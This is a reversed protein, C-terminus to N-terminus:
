KKIESTKKWQVYNEELIKIVKDRQEANGLGKWDVVAFDVEEFTKTLAEKIMESTIPQVYSPIIHSLAINSNLQVKNFVPCYHPGGIGIGVERYPSEYFTDIAEKLAKAVIFAARKDRWEDESGGIELFVCPKDILPGHHTVELTLKYNKVKHEKMTKNLKEYLHKNFLASSVSLEGKKGGGWVERFNGPSHISITKEKKTSKHKSAFIIFDFSNVRAMDLNKEDLISGEVRHFKINDSQFQDIYQFLETTINMGAKDEKSAIILYKKFKAM